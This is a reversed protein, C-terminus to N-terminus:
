DEVLEAFAPGGERALPRELDPLTVVRDALCLSARYVRFFEGSGAERIVEIRWRRDRSRYVGVLPM